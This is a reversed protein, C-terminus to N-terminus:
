TFKIKRWGKHPKRAMRKKGKDTYAVGARIRGSGPTDVGRVDFRNPRKLWRPDDVTVVQRALLSRDIALARDSQKVPKTKLAAIERKPKQLEKIRAEIKEKGMKALERQAIHKAGELTGASLGGEWSPPLVSAGTKAEVIKWKAFSPADPDRKALCEVGEITIPKWGKGKGEAKPEPKAAKAKFAQIAKIM